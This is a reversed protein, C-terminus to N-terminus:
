EAFTVQTPKMAHTPVEGTLSELFAVILEVDEDGITRGLQAAAMVKVADSLLTVSGTHFYPSTMAVNRLTPVKYVPITGAKDANGARQGHGVDVAHFAGFYQMVNGGLNVGQHCATCGYGKFLEYGAAAQASIARTNGNLYDDFPSPTILTREYAAIAEALLEPTLERTNFVTEFRSLLVKDTSLKELVEPWNAGMEIPNVVPGLAQAVLSDARGDWFQRFNHGSNLVTPANINGIQGKMGVSTARGDDGGAQVNHCSACSITGDGSLRKDHFLQRGLSVLESNIFDPNQAQLARVPESLPIAERQLTSLTTPQAALRSFKQWDDNQDCASLSLLVIVHLWRGHRRRIRRVVGFMSTM